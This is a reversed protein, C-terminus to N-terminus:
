SRAQGHHGDTPMKRDRSTELAHPGEDAVGRPMRAGWGQARLRGRAWLGQGGPAAGTLSGGSRDILCAAPLPFRRSQSGPRGVTGLAPAKPASRRQPPCRAHKVPRKAPARSCFDRFVSSGRHCRHATRLTFASVPGRYLPRRSHFCAIRFVAHNGVVMLHSSQVKTKWGGRGWGLCSDGLLM